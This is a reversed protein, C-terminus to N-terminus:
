GRLSRELEKIVTEKGVLEVYPGFRPGQLRGILIQYVLPFVDRPKMGM